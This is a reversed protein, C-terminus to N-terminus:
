RVRGHAPSTRPRPKLKCVKIMPVPGFFATAAVTLLVAIILLLRRTFDPKRAVRDSM